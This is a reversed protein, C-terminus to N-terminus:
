KMLQIAHNSQSQTTTGHHNAIVGESSKSHMEYNIMPYVNM